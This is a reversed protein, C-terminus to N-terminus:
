LRKRRTEYRRYFISEWKKRTRPRGHKYLHWQRATAVQRYQQDLMEVMSKFGEFYRLLRSLNEAAEASLLDTNLPEIQM